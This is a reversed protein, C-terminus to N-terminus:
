NRKELLGFNEADLITIKNKILIEIAKDNDSFCFIMVGKGNDAGIFAYMYSVSVKETNLFSLLDSLKGPRDELEVAIVDNVQAPVHHEMLVRRAGSLDPVLLRLIGNGGHNSLNLAKLNIGANKLVSTIELFQNSQHDIEISIEKLKM